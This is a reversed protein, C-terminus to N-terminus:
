TDMNKVSNLLRITTEENQKSSNMNCNLTILSSMMLISLILKPTTNKLGSGIMLLRSMTVDTLSFLFQSNGAPVMQIHVAAASSVAALM